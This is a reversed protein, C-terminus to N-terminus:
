SHAPIAAGTVKWGRLRLNCKGCFLPNYKESIRPPVGDTYSMICNHDNTDHHKPWADSAAEHHYLFNHHGFEHAIVYGRRDGDGLDYTVVGDALGYSVFSAVFDRKRYGKSADSGDKLIDVPRHPRFAIVLHGRPNQPRLKNGVLRAMPTSVKNVFGNSDDYFLLNLASEYDAGSLDEQAPLNRGYLCDKTLKFKQWLPIGLVSLGGPTADKVIRDADDAGVEATLQAKLNKPEFVKILKQYDSNKIVSTIDLLDGGSPVSMDIYTQDYDLQVRDLKYDAHSVGPWQVIKVFPDERWITVVGTETKRADRGDGDAEHWTKLDGANPFGTFDLDAIVRYSDGAIKSPSFNVGTKGILAKWKTTKDTYAESRPLKAPKDLTFPEYSLFIKALDDKGGISGPCNKKFATGDTFKANAAVWTQVDQM